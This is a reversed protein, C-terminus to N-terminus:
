ATIPVVQAQVADCGLCQYTRLDTRRRTPHPEIGTLRTPGGCQTCAPSHVPTPHDFNMDIISM